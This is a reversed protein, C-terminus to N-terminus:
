AGAQVRRDFPTPVMEFVHLHTVEDAPVQFLQVLLEVESDPAKPVLRM